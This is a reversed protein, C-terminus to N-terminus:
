NNVLQCGPQLSCATPSLSACPTPTGTCTTTPGTWGTCGYQYTCTTQDTFSSCPSPTGTCSTTGSSWSCSLDTGCTSSSTFSSCPTLTGTCASTSWGGCDYQQACVTSSTITNCAVPTGTCAGSTSNYTCGTNQTCYSQLNNYESCPYTRTGNCTGTTSTSCGPCYTSNCGFYSGCTACTTVNSYLPLCTGTTTGATCGSCYTSSCGYVSGCTACTVTRTGNCVGGASTQPTCGQCYGASTGSCGYVAGCTACSSYIPTGTCHPGTSFVQTPPPLNVQASKCCIQQNCDSSSQCTKACTKSCIGECCIENNATNCDTSQKCTTPCAAYTPNLCLGTAKIHPELASITTCCIEGNGTNCDSSAACAKPCRSVPLCFPQDYDTCCVDGTTACDSDVSCLQIGSSPVLCQKESQSLDKLECAQGKTSDCKSDDTCTIPCQSAQTCSKGASGYDCCLEGMSTECDSDSSCTKACTAECIGTGPPLRGPTNKNSCGSLVFAFLGVALGFAGVLKM